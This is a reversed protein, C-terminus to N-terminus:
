VPLFPIDWIVVAALAAAAAIVVVASGLVRQVVSAEGAVRRATELQDVARELLREAWAFELALMALGIAAVLVGPGPLPILVVGLALVVFGAGAFAARYLKSRRAHRERRANLRELLRHREEGPM